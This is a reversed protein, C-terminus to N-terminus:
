TTARSTDSSSVSYQHDFTWTVSVCSASILEIVVYAGLFRLNNSSTGNVLCIQSGRPKGSLARSCQM